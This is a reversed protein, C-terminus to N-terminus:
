AGGLENHAARSLRGILDDTTWRTHVVLVSGGPELRPIAVSNFWAWLREREVGSEARARDKTPDDVVLLDFGEGTWPSDIGGAWCGGDRVGTRWDSKSKADAAVTGGARKYLERTERSKKQAFTASYSALGIRTEPRALLRRAIGHKVLETKGMRPPLCATGWVAERDAREFLEALPALHRPAAFHPSVRVVFDLLPLVRASM